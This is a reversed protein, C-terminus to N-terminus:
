RKNKCYRNEIVYMLDEIIENTTNTSLTIEDRQTAQYLGDVFVFLLNVIHSPDTNKILEGKDIARTISDEKIKYIKKRADKLIEHSDKLEKADLVTLVPQNLRISRTCYYLDERIIDLIHKDQNFIRKYEQLQRNAHVEVAEQFLDAKTKYRYYLPGRTINAENAIDQMNTAEYGREAFLKIAAEIIIKNNRQTEDPTTRM